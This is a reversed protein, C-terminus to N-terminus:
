IKICSYGTIVFIGFITNEVGYGVVSGGLHPSHVGRIFFCGIHFLKSQKQNLPKFGGLNKAENKKPEATQCKWFKVFTICQLRCVYLKPVCLVMYPM